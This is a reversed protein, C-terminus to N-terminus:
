PAGSDRRRAGPLQRRLLQAEDPTVVGLLFQGAVLLALGFALAGASTLPGALLRYLGFVVGALLAPRALSRGWHIRVRRSTVALGLASWVVSGSLLLLLYSEAGSLVNRLGLVVVTMALAGLAACIMAERARDHALQIQGTLTGIGFPLALLVGLYVLSGAPRYAEGLIWPIAWTGLTSALMALAVTAAIGARLALELFVADKSDTRAVSRSLAPLAARGLAAPVGAMLVFVQLVLAVIGLDAPHAAHGRFMVFPGQMLWTAAISAGAVPAVAKLLSAQEGLNPQFRLAPLRSRAIVLAAVAQLIWSLAHVVAIGVLGAGLFLAVSGAVVEVVRAGVELAFMPRAKEIAIFASNSWMAASRGAMALSFVLLLVPLPQAERSTGALYLAIAFVALTSFTRLTLARSLIASGQAPAAALQRSMYSELQLNAIALLAAYWGLGYNLLGFLEPGLKRAVIAAYAARLVSTVLQAAFILSANSGINRVGSRTPQNM